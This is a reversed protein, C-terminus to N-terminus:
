KGAAPVSFISTYVMRGNIRDSRMLCVEEVQMSASPPQFATGDTGSMRRLLTIHPHFEKKDYPIGKLDLAARIQEALAYLAKGGDVGAWLLDGFRGMGSLSLKFPKFKLEQLLSRIVAEQNTEGIFCLTLHLNQAHAYNGSVGKERLMRMQRLLKKKMEDSMRVAIFLRM